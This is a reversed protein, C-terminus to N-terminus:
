RTEEIAMYSDRAAALWSEDSEHRTPDFVVLEDPGFESGEIEDPNFTYRLSFSPWHDVSESPVLESNSM